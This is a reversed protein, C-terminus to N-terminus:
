GILGLEDGFILHNPRTPDDIRRLARKQRMVRSELILPFCVHGLSEDGNIQIRAWM